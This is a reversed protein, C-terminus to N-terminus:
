GVQVAVMSMSGGDFGEIPFKIGDNERHQALVYILPLYHDPTSVALRAEFGLGEYEVLPSFDARALHDHVTNEFRLAWDFAKVGTRGWAYTHLYHVLKGSGVIFVDENRLPRLKTALAYHWEGPRTRDISLQVTPVDADPFVHKLVSWAGHDLGRVPDLGFGDSRLVEV